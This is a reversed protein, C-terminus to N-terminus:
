KADDNVELSKKLDKTAKSIKSIPMAKSKSLSDQAMAGFPVLLLFLFFFYITRLRM